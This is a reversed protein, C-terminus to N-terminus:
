RPVVLEGQSRAAMSQPLRAAPSAPGTVTGQAQRRMKMRNVQDRISPQVGALGGLALTFAPDLMANLINDIMHLVLLVAIAAAAAVGPHYWLKLPCRRWVLLPPLLIVVTLAMLGIVGCTGLTIIWLGDIPTADNGRADVVRNRNWRGWGFWPQEMAKAALMNEAKVRVNFSKTREEGFVEASKELAWDGNWYGSARLTMYVPAVLILGVLPIPTRLFRIALLTGLGAALFLMGGLSRVMVSTGLLTPVLLLMPIGVLKKTTGSLWMWLAILAAGNMWMAVALGHQLFVMPRYGGMRLTQVFDNQFYGYITKHLQPSFRMEYWCLPCYLLGGIVIAIGLETLAEWDPFYVRGLFYPLGWLVVKDMVASGGDYYGLGNNVSTFFPTICMILMPLDFWRPRFTLIIRPNFIITGLLGAFSAATMKSYEPVGTFKVIACPLFLWGGIFGMLLARRPPFIAFLCMVLPLWGYLAIYVALKYHMDFRWCVPPNLM